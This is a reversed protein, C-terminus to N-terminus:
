SDCEYIVVPFIMAKIISFKKLLTVDRSKFINSPKDYSEESLCAYKLKMCDDDATVKSGGFIIDRVTEMTVGDIEWSTIPGFAMIKM